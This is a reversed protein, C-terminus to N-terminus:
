QSLGGCPEPPAVQISAPEHPEVALWRDAGDVLSKFEEIGEVTQFREFDMTAEHVRVRGFEGVAAVWIEPPRESDSVTRFELRGALREFAKPDFIETLGWLALPHLEIITPWEHFRIHYGACVIKLDVYVRDFGNPVCPPYAAKTGSAVSAGETM